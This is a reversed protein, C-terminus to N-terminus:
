RVKKRSFSTPPLAKTPKSFKAVKSDSECNQSMTVAIKGSGGSLGDTLGEAAVFDKAVNPSTKHDIDTQKNLDVLKATDLAAMALGILQVAEPGGGLVDPALAATTRLDDIALALDTLNSM